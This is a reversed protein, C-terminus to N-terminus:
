FRASRWVDHDIREERDFRKVPEGRLNLVIIRASRPDSKIIFSEAGNAILTGPPVDGWLEFQKFEVKMCEDCRASARLDSYSFGARMGAARPKGYITSAEHMRADHGKIFFFGNTKRFTHQAADFIAMADSASPRVFNLADIGM